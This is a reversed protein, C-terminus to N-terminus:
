MHTASHGLEAALEKRAGELATNLQWNAAQPAQSLASALRALESLRFQPGGEISLLLTSRM